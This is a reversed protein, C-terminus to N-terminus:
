STKKVPKDSKNAAKPKSMRDKLAALEDELEDNSDLAAFQSELSEGEGLDFAEVHAELEDVKREMREYRSLADDVRTDVIKTRMKVQSRAVSSRMTLAKHKAKAEDLKTQLKSLDMDAKGIAEDLVEIEKGVVDAMDEAQRRATLAGRALDERDKTIALEAKAAWDDAHKRYDDERRTLEKREAINRAADTRVEVLTDEMEQIILRAIKEPDEAAEIMANLNSNIIDGMRSYIGM